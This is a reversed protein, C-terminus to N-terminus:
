ELAHLAQEGHIVVTLWETLAPLVASASAYLMYLGALGALLADTEMGRHNAWLFLPIACGFLLAGTVFGSPLMAGLLTPLLMALGLLGLALFPKAKWYFRQLRRRLEHM